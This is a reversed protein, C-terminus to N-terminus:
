CMFKLQLGQVNRMGLWLSAFFIIKWKQINLAGDEFMMKTRQKWITGIIYLFVGKWARRRLKGGINLAGKSSNEMAWSVRFIEM